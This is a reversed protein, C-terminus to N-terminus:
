QLDKYFDDVYTLLHQEYKNFKQRAKIKFDEPMDWILEALAGGILCYTDTEGGCSVINRLLDEYSSSQNVCNIILEMNHRALLNYNNNVIYYVMKYDTKFGYEVAKEMIYLKRKESSENKMLLLDYMIGIYFVAINQAEIHNHTLNNIALATNITKQKSWGKALGWHAVPALRMLGSNGYSKYPEVAGKELWQNFIGGFGKQYLTYCFAKLEMNALEPSINPFDKEEYSLADGLQEKLKFKDKDLLELNESNMLTSMTSILTVTGETFRMEKTFLEFHKNRHNEIKFPSGIIDGVIAGWM